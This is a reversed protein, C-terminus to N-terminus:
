IEGVCERTKLFGLLPWLWRRDLKIGFSNSLLCHTSRRRSIDGREGGEKERRGGEREGEREGGERGREGEERGGEGERGRGGERGGERGGKRRIIATLTVEEVHRPISM